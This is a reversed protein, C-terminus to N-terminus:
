LYCFVSLSCRCGSHPRCPNRGGRTRIRFLEGPHCSCQYRWIRFQPCLLRTLPYNGSSIVCFLVVLSSYRNVSARRPQGAPITPWPKARTPIELHSYHAEVAPNLKNFLMNPPIKANQLALSARLIGALGATGETHGIITKISGVYLKEPWESALKNIGYKAAESPFFASAIARAEIPDGTPTGTGHAEFYQPRNTPNRLDLGARAYCDRILQAQSNFDPRCTLTLLSLHEQACPCPCVNHHWTDQWGSEGRDRPYHM